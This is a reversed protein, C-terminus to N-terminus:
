YRANSYRICLSKCPRYVFLGNLRDIRLAVLCAYAAAFILSVAAAFLDYHKYATDRIGLGSILDLNGGVRYRYRSRVSHPLCVETATHCVESLEELRQKVSRNGTVCM